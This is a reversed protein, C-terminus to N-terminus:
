GVRGRRPDRSRGIDGFIAADGMADTDIEAVHHDGALVQEAIRDVNRGSQFLEALRASYQDRAGGVIVQVALDGVLDLIDALMPELADGARHPDIAHM